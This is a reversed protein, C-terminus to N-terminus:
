MVVFMLVFVLMFVLVLMVMLIMVPVAQVALQQEDYGTAYQQGTGNEDFVIGSEVGPLQQQDIEHWVQEYAM